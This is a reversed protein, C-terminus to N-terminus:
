TFMGLSSQKRDLFRNKNKKIILIWNVIPRKYKQVNKKLVTREFNIAYGIAKSSLSLTKRELQPCAHKSSMKFSEPERSENGSVFCM